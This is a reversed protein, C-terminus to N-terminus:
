PIAHFARFVANMYQFLRRDGNGGFACRKGIDGAPRAAQRRQFSVVNIVIQNQGRLIELKKFTDNQELGM